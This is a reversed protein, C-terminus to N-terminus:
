TLRATQLTEAAYATIKIYNLQVGVNSEQCLLRVDSRESFTRHLALVFPQIHDITGIPSMQLDVEDYKGTAALRCRVLPFTNVTNDVWAKATMLYHGPPLSMSTVQTFTSSATVDAPGDYFGSYVKPAQDDPIPAFHQSTALDQNRYAGARIATLRLFRLEDTGPPQGSACLLVVADGSGFTHIVQLALPLRDAIGGEANNAGAIRDLDGGATLRCTWTAGSSPAASQAVAKATVSWRGAPLRLTAVAAETSNGPMSVPGQDFGTIARTRSGPSGFAAQGGVRLNRVTLAGTKFAIIRINEVVIDGTSGASGCRLLARGDSDFHHSVALLFAERSSDGGAGIPAARIEDAEAGATLRCGTPVFTSLEALTNRLVGKAYFTWNGRPVALHAVTGFTSGGQVDVPGVLKGARMVPQVTTAGAFPAPVFMVVSMVTVAIAIARVRLSPRSREM